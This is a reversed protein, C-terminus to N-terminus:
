ANSRIPTATKATLPASAALRLASSRKPMTTTAAIVAMPPAGQAVQEQVTM